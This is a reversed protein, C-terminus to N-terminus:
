QSTWACEHHGNETRTVHRGGFMSSPIEGVVSWGIVNSSRSDWFGTTQILGSANLVIPDWNSLTTISIVPRDVDAGHTIGGLIENRPFQGALASDNSREIVPTGRDMTFERAVSFAGSVIASVSWFFM